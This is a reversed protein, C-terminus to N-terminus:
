SRTVERGRERTGVHRDDRGGLDEPAGFWQECSVETSCRALLGRDGSDLPGQGSSPSRRVRGRAAGLTSGRRSRPGQACRTRPGVSCAHGLPLGADPWEHGDERHCHRHLAQPCQEGDRVRIVAVCPDGPGCEGDHQHEPCGCQDSQYCRPEVDSHHYDAGHREERRHPERQLQDARNAHAQGPEGGRRPEDRDGHHRSGLGVARVRCDRDHGSEREVRGHARRPAGPVQGPLAPGSWHEHGDHQDDRQDSDRDVGRRRHLRGAPGRAQPERQTRVEGKLHQHELAQGHDRRGTPHREGGGSRHHEDAVSERDPGGVEGQASVRRRGQEARCRDRECTDREGDGPRGADGRDREDGHSLHEGRREERARAGIRRRGARAGGGDRGPDEAAHEREPERQEEVLQM